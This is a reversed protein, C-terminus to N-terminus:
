RSYERLNPRTMIVVDVFGKSTCLWGPLTGCPTLGASAFLRLSPTNGAPVHVYLFRLHLCDFAYAAILDIAERGLGCRRSAADILIGLGARRHHPDFDYLDVTGAAENTNKDVIMLRLQRRIYLDTDAAIYEHLTYRSYPELTCGQEWITTDNEWAYLADLDEPELARLRVRHGDFWRTSLHTMSHPFDM